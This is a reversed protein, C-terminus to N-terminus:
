KNEALWIILQGAQHTLTYHSGVKFGLKSLWKGSFTLQPSPNHKGCNLLYGM